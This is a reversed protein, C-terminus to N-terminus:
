TQALEQAAPKQQEVSCIDTLPFCPSSLATLYVLCQRIQQLRRLSKFQFRSRRMVQVVHQRSEAVHSHLVHAAIIPIRLLISVVEWAVPHNSAM